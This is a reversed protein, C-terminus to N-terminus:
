RAMNLKLTALKTPFTDLHWSFGPEHASIVYVLGTDQKQCEISAWILIRRSLMVCPYIPIIYRQFGLTTWTATGDCHYVGATRLRRRAELTKEVPPSMSCPLM